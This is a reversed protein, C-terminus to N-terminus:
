FNQLVKQLVPGGVMPSGNVDKCQKVSLLSGTKENILKYAKTAPVLGNNHRQAISLGFPDNSIIGILPLKLSTLQMPLISNQQGQSPQCPHFPKELPYPLPFM